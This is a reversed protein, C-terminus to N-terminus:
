FPVEEDSEQEKKIQVKKYIAPNPGKNPSVEELLGEAKLKKLVNSIATKTRNFQPNAKRVANYVDIVSFKVTMEDVATRVIKSLEGRKISNKDESPDESIECFKKLGELRKEYERIKYEQDLEAKLKKYRVNNEM